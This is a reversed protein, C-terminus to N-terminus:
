ENMAERFDRTVSAAQTEEPVVKKGQVAMDSFQVSEPCRVAISQEGVHWRHIGSRVANESKIVM